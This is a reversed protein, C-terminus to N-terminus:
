RCSVFHTVLLAWEARTMLMSQNGKARSWVTVRVADGETTVQTGRTGGANLVKVFDSGATVSNKSM